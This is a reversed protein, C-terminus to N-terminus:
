KEDNMIEHIKARKKDIHWGTMDYIKDKGQIAGMILGVAAGAVTGGVRFLFRFLDNVEDSDKVDSVGAGLSFGVVIGIAAGYIVSKKNMSRKIIIEKILGISMYQKSGNSVILLSDDNIIQVESVKLRDRNSTTIYWSVIGFQDPEKGESGKIKEVIVGTKTYLKARGKSQAQLPSLVLFLSVYISILKKM